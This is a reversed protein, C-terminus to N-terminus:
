KSPPARSRDVADKVEKAFTATVYIQDKVSLNSGLIALAKRSSSLAPSLDPLPSVIGALQADMEALAIILDQTDKARSDGLAQLENFLKFQSDQGALKAARDDFKADSSFKELEAQMMKISAVRQKAILSQVRKFEEAETQFNAILFATQNAQNLEEKPAQACGSLVLFSLLYARSCKDM